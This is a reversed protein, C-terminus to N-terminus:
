PRRSIGCRPVPMTGAWPWDGEFGPWPRTITATRSRESCPNLVALRVDTSPLGPPAARVEPDTPPLPELTSDAEDPRGLRRFYEALALRSARDGPDEQIAQRMTEALDAPDIPEHSALTGVLLDM